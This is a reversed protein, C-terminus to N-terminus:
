SWGNSADDNCVAWLRETNGDSTSASTDESVSRTERLILATNSMDDSALSIPLLPLLERRFRLGFVLSMVRVCDRCVSRGRWRLEGSGSEHVLRARAVLRRRRRHWLPSGLQPFAELVTDGLHAVNTDLHVRELFHELQLPIM